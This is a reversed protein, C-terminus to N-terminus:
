IAHKKQTVIEWEKELLQNRPLNLLTESPDLGLAITEKNLLFTV